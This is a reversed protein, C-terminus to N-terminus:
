WKTAIWKEGEVIPEAEHLSRVDEVGGQSTSDVRTGPVVRTLVTLLSFYFPLPVSFFHLFHLARPPTFVCNACSRLILACM